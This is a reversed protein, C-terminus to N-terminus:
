IRASRYLIDGRKQRVVITDESWELSGLRHAFIIEDPLSELIVDTLVTHGSKSIDLTKRLIM